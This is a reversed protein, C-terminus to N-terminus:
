HRFFAIALGIAGLVYGAAERVGVGHGRSETISSQNVTIQQELRRIESSLVDKTAFTGNQDTLTGRFENVSAFHRTNEQYAKDIAKETTALAALVAEKMAAFQIANRKEAEAHLVSHKEDFAKLMADFYERDEM